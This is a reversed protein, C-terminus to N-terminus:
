FFIYIKIFHNEINLLSGLRKMVCSFIKFSKTIEKNLCALIKRMLVHIMWFVDWTNLNGSMSYVYGLQAFRM